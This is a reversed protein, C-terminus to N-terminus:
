KKNKVAKKASPYYSIHDCIVDIMKRLGDNPVIVRVEEKYGEPLFSSFRILNNGDSRSTIELNDVFITPLTMNYFVKKSEKKEEATM